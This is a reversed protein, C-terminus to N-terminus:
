QLPPSTAPRTTCSGAVRAGSAYTVLGRSMRACVSFHRSRMAPSLFIPQPSGPREEGLTVGCMQELLDLAVSSLQGLGVGWGVRLITAAAAARVRVHRSELLRSLLSKARLLSREGVALIALVVVAARDEGVKRSTKLQDADLVHAM